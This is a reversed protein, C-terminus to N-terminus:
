RSPHGTRPYGREGVWRTELPTEDRARGRRPSLIDRAARPSDDRSTAFNPITAFPPEKDELNEPLGSGSVRAAGAPPEDRCGPLFRDPGAEQMWGNHPIDVFAQTRVSAGNPLITWINVIRKRSGNPDWPTEHTL